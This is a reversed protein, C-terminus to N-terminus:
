PEKRPIRGAREILGKRRTDYREYKNESNKVLLDDPFEGMGIRVAGHRIAQERKRFTLDYHPFTTDQFWERKLGIKQAFEHLEDLDSTLLHGGGAWKDGGVGPLFQDIYITM